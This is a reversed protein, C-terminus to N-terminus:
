LSLFVKYGIPEMDKDLLEVSIISDIDIIIPYKYELNLWLLIYLQPLGYKQFEITYLVAFTTIVFLTM